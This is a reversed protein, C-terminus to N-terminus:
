YFYEDSDSSDQKSVRLYRCNQVAIMPDIQETSPEEDSPPLNLKQREEKEMETALLAIYRLRAAGKTNEVLLSLSTTTLSTRRSAQSKLLSKVSSAVSSSRERMPPTDLYDHTPVQILTKSQNIDPLFTDSNHTKNESLTSEDLNAVYKTPINLNTNDTRISTGTEGQVFVAANPKPRPSTSINSFSPSDTAEHNNVLVRPVIRLKDATDTKPDIMSVDHDSKSKRRVGQKSNLRESISPLKMSGIDVSQRRKPVRISSPTFGPTVSHRRSKMKAMNRLKVDQEFLDEDTDSHRRNSLLAKDIPTLPHRKNNMASDNIDEFPINATEICSLLNLDEDCSIEDCTKIGDSKEEFCKEPDCRKEDFATETDESITGDVKRLIKDKYTELLNSDVDVLKNWTDLSYPCDSSVTDRGFSKSNASAARELNLEAEKLICADISERRRASARGVYKDYKKLFNAEKYSLNKLSRLKEEEIFSKQKQLYRNEQVHSSYLKKLDSVGTQDSPPKPLM